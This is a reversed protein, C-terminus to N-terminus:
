RHKQIHSGLTEKSMEMDERLSGVEDFTANLVPQMEQVTEKVKSIEQANIQASAKLVSIDEAMKEGQNKLERIDAQMQPIPQTAEVVTAVMSKIDEMIAIAQWLENHPEEETHKM